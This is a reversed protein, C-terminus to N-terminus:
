TRLGHSAFFEEATALREPTGIDLFPADVTWARLRGAAAWLPFWDREMSSAGDPAIQSALSRPLSYIGANVLGQGARDPKESFGRVRGSSDVTVQGFSRADTVRVLVIGCDDGFHDAEARFRSLDTVVVSDGNLVLFRDGYVMDLALRVAGGTGLPQTEVSYEVEVRDFRRGVVRQVEEARYGVAMVVRRIGARAVQQLLHCVFPAGGISVLM